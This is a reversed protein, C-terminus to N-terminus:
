GYVGAKRKQTTIREVDDSPTRDGRTMDEAAAQIAKAVRSHHSAQAANSM